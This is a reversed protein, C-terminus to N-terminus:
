ERHEVIERVDLHADERWKTLGKKCIEFSSVGADSGIECWSRLNDTITGWPRAADAQARV